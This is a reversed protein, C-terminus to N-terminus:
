HTPTLCGSITLRLLATRDSDMVEEVNHLFFGCRVSEQPDGEGSTLIISFKFRSDVEAFLRERNEFDLVEALM